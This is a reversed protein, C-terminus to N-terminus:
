FGKWPVAHFKGGVKGIMNRSCNKYPGAPLCCRPFALESNYILILLVFYCKFNFALQDSM